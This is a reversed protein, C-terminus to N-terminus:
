EVSPPSDDARPKDVEEDKEPSPKVAEGQVQQCVILGGQIIGRLLSKGSVIGELINNPTSNNEDDLYTLLIQATRTITEQNVPMLM